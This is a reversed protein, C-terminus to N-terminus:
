TPGSGGEPSDDVVWRTIRTDGYRREDALRLGQPVPVAHCRGSEVVLTAGKALVGSKTLAALVRELEGAAAYPPDALVLDFREGLEGLRRVARSADSTVVRASVSLELSELNERLVAASRRSREVFVAREAGRSLAEIGLAGSGAYLDLLYVGELDGLRAFIAERVRDSTPRTGGPPSRLRRSRLHGGTVRLGGPGRSV